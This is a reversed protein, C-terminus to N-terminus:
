TVQRMFLMLIIQLTEPQTCAVCREARLADQCRSVVVLSGRKEEARTPSSQNLSPTSGQGEGRENCEGGENSQIVFWEVRMSPPM